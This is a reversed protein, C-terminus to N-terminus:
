QSKMEPGQLNRSLAKGGAIYMKGMSFVMPFADHNTAGQIQREKIV